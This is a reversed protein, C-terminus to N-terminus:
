HRSITYSVVAFALTYCRDGKDRLCIRDRAENWHYM